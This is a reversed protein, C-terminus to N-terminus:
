LRPHKSFLIYHPSTKNRKINANRNKGHKLFNPTKIGQNKLIPIFSNHLSVYKRQELNSLILPNILLKMILAGQLSGIVSKPPRPPKKPNKRRQM